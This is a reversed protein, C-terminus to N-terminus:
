PVYFSEQIRCSRCPLRHPSLRQEARSRNPRACSPFAPPDRRRIRRHSAPGARRGGRGCASTPQSRRAGNGARQPRTPFRRGPSTPGARGHLPAAATEDCPGRVCALDPQQEVAIEVREFLSGTSMTGFRDSTSKTSRSSSARRGASSAPVIPVNSSTKSRIACAPPSARLGSGSTCRANTTRRAAPAGCQVAEGRRRLGAAECVRQELRDGLDLRAQELGAIEVPSRGATRATGRPARGGRDRRGHVAGACRRQAGATRGRRRARRAPTRTRSRPGSWRATPAARPARRACRPSRTAGYSGPRGPKADSLRVASSRERRAPARM